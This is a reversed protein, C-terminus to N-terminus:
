LVRRYRIASTGNPGQLFANRSVLGNQPVSSIGLEQDSATIGTGTVYMTHFFTNNGAYQIQYFYGVDPIHVNRTSDYQNVQNIPAPVWDGLEATFYFPFNPPGNATENRVDDSRIQGSSIINGSLTINGTAAINRANNIDGDSSITVPTPQLFAAAKDANDGDLGNNSPLRTVTPIRNNSDSSSITVLQHLISYLLTGIQSNRLGNLQIGFRLLINALEEQIMNRDEAVLQTGAVNTANNQDVYQNLLHGPATTRKM